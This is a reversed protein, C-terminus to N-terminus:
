VRLPGVLRPTYVFFLSAGATQPVRPAENLSILHPPHPTRPIRIGM